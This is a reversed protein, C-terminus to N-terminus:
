AYTEGTLFVREISELVNQGALGPLVDLLRKGVIDSRGLPEM